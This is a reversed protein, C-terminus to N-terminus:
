SSTGPCTTQQFLVQPLTVHPTPYQTLPEQVRGQVGVVTFHTYSALPLQLVITHVETHDVAQRSYYFFQAQSFEQHFPYKKLQVLFKNLHPVPAM